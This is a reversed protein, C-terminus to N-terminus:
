LLMREHMLFTFRMLTQMTVVLAGVRAVQLSVDNRDVRFVVRVLTVHTVFAKVPRRFQFFVHRSVLPFFQVLASVTVKLNCIGEDQAAVYERNVCLIKGEPALSTPLAKPLLVLQFFVHFCVAAPFNILTLVTLIASCVGRAELPM